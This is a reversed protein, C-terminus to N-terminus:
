FPFDPHSQRSLHYHVGAQGAIGPIPPTTKVIDISVSDAMEFQRLIRAAIRRAVTELLNRPTAMEEKAINYIDAYSITTLLNDEENFDEAIVPRAFGFDDDICVEEHILMVNVSVEFDNGALREQETVGHHAFFRCKDIYVNFHGLADPLISRKKKPKAM